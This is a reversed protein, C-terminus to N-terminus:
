LNLDIFNQLMVAAAYADEMEKRKKRKLGAALSLNQADQTSLTEDSFRVPINFVEFIKDGFEKSKEEMIGESLGVVVTEPKEKEILEKLKKFLEEQTEYRIVVLPEALKLSAIAVGVKKLGFDFAIIM